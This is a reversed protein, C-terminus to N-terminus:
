SNPNTTPPESLAQSKRIVRVDELAINLEAGLLIASCWLWLWLMVVIIAALSGYFLSYRAINAAYYGLGVSAATGLSAGTLAGAWVRRTVGPRHISYRYILALFAAVVLLGLGPLGVQLLGRPSYRGLAAQLLQFRDMTALLGVASVLLALILGVAAFGMSLLRGQIWPRPKCDFNEEFLCIMTYFASSSLWWCVILAAPALRRGSFDELNRTLFSRLESPTVDAVVGSELLAQPSNQLLHAIGWAALALMPILALFLDFAMASATRVSHHRVLARLLWYVRAHAESTNFFHELKDNAKRTLLRLRIELPGGDAAHRGPRGPLEGGPAKRPAQPAAQEQTGTM